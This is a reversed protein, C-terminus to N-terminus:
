GGYLFFEQIVQVVHLAEEPTLEPYIPLSLATRALQRAGPMITVAEPPLHQLVVPEENLPCPYHIQTQIGRGKLFAALADRRPTRLVFKHWNHTKALIPPPLAVEPLDVLGELYLHAIAGREEMWTPLQDLKFSLMAAMESSLQSNYGLRVFSRSVPDRGHYRLMRLTDALVPDDTLVAGGSGFSGVVKTPDFSLCSALGMSGAPRTESFTGLAQAADELLLLQHRSAFGELWEIPLTRGYLHVALLARSAPTVQKELSDLDMLGSSPDVDVFRPTAGVRLIATVSAIFSLSTVLVEDGSGIGSAMLSFALADTCSGVAVAHRRGVLRCLKGEFESVEPGQLVQGHRLVQDNIARFSERYRLYQRDLAFFPITNVLTSGIGAM